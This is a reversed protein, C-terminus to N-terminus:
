WGFAENDMWLDQEKLVQEIVDRVCGKGGEKRSIYSSIAKVEYCADSPCVALGVKKMVELDPIDDGMYLTQQPTVGTQILFDEFAKTKIKIGMYIHNVGLSEFRKRVAPTNGGTIIGVELGKKVALQIAYGDKINVTRMPEGSPHMPIVDCSLVGDVDFILAKISKLDYTIVGM